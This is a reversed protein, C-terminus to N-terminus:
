APYDDSPSDTGYDPEAQSYDGPKFLTYEQELLDASKLYAMTDFLSLQTM